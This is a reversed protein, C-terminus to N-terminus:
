GNIASTGVQKDPACPYFASYRELTGWLMDKSVKECVSRFCNPTLIKRLSVGVHLSPSDYIPGGIKQNAFDRKIKHAVALM